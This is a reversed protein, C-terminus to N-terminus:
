AVATIARLVDELESVDVDLEVVSGNSLRARCGLRSTQTVTTPEVRVFRVPAQASSRSGGGVGDSQTKTYRSRAAYFSAGSLGHAETYAKISDASAACAEIHKLWFQRRRESHSANSM